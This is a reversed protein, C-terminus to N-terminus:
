CGALASKKMLPEPVICDFPATDMMMPVVTPSSTKDPVMADPLFDIDPVNVVFPLEAPVHLQVFGQDACAPLLLSAHPM